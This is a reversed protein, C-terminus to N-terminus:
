RIEGCSNGLNQGSATWLVLSVIITIFVIILKGIDISGEKYSNWAFSGLFYVLILSAFTMVILYGTRTFSNCGSEITIFSSLEFNISSTAVNGSTDNCWFNVTQAQYTNDINKSGKFENVFGQKTM